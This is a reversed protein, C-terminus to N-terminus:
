AAPAPLIMVKRPDAAARRRCAHVLFEGAVVDAEELEGLVSNTIPQAMTNMM